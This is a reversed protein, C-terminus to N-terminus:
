NVTDLQQKLRRIDPRSIYSSFDAAGWKQRIGALVERAQAAYSRAKDRDRTRSLAAAALLCARWRSENQGAREFRERAQLALEAAERADGLELLAQADALLAAAILAPDGSKEALSVAERTAREGSASLGTFTRCLGFVINAIAGQDADEPNGLRVAERIEANALVYQHRSLAMEAELRRLVSLLAKDPSPGDAMKAARDFDRRADAYRGLRWQVDAANLLAYRVIMDNHLARGAAYSAQYGALAAPYQEEHGLANGIADWALAMKYEDGIRQAVALQQQSANLAGEYDGQRVKARALLILAGATEDGYGGRQYFRLAPELEKLGADIQGQSIHLSALSLLARMEGRVGRHARAYELAQQFDGAARTLEGRGYHINGADVLGEAALNDFGAKRAREIGDGALALAEDHKELDDAIQSLQLLASVERYQNGDARAMELARQMLTDAEASRELKSAVVGRQYLVETRGEVNGLADYLREAEAFAAASKDLDRKRGYLVGLRLFAAPPRPPRKTTQLYSTIAGNLDENKELARGLDLYVGTAAPERTVRLIERYTEVAQRFNYSITSHVAQLQLMELRSTHPNTGPPLAQLMEERAGGANDLEFWAEALRAHAMAFTNDLQVAQQFAKSAHYWAGDRLAGTGKDFWYAAEPARRTSRPWLWWGALIAILAALVIAPRRYRRQIGPTIWRSLSETGQEDGRVIQERVTCIAAAMEEASQFRAAPEKALAKMVAGDIAAPVRPNARSPPPPDLHILNSVVEVPTAGTFAPRGTLCEYLLSGLSFLDSRADIEAGRAQEPSMNPPTGAATGQLTRTRLLIAAHPDSADPAKESLETVLGFDLVKVQSREDLMINSPKVDRHILGCRHAAALGIAVGEAIELSRLVPVPGDRLIQALSKGEILEMVIFPQGEPTEGYDHVEAIHSDKLNSAARAERLFRARSREDHASATSFKIAVRKRLHTHEALYVTGMGGQGLKDLIRYQLVDRGIM